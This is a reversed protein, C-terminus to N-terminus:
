DRQDHDVLSGKTADPALVETLALARTLIEM